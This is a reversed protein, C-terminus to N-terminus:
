LDLNVEARIDRSSAGARLFYGGHELSWRGKMEDWYSLESVPLNFRVRFTEGPSLDPTKVFDRLEKEPRDIRTEPKSVYLQVVEKGTHSGTNTIELNLSITDKNFTVEPKGYTFDTYSLGYGFPYSVPLDNKDFHRYGVYIGEEYLTYDRNRVQKEPEVEGAFIMDTIKMPEGELPFNRHSAHDGVKVPFTMPLKGSPNVKGSLVDAVANGGEQGGQWALLIADPLDKWSSTEIVGGINLVVILRKGYNHFIESARQLLDSEEVTLNFDDKERRDGGEGSNRGITLVALDSTEALNSLVENSYYIEPPDYPTFMAEIGEPKIFEDQHSERHREFIEVGERNITFGTSALGERLSVTYAENVDGSGTGGAIFDYSTVGLLAVNESGKLPLTSENKLLVMGEAASERAVRAHAKLDPNNSPKLGKMKPSRLILKLIREAATDIHKQDLNGQEYAETLADWQKKTGPELLDNGARIMAPADNGGFWDSMVLGDFGWEDRLIGTLLTGNEATYTGNVKNYSSMITSPNAEEVIIRFGKLYIERLARESVMSNNFNRNTEQNNAVFHKVSSGVGNIEIGSVMAAGTKGSLVPDESYYEFNRGCFPHRHINAGPGLIVDIGYALAEEGMAKGVSKVLPTNWTSALQTAVPFATCYYTRKEGERTPEIRLGAPGDSLYLTPLGLRPTPVITGVAGPIGEGPETRGMASALGSGKLLHIKEEVTMKDLLDAARAEVTLRDDEYVDLEGNRNRDIFERGNVTLKGPVNIEQYESEFDIFTAKLYFWGILGGVLLILLVSGTAILFIRFFKNM